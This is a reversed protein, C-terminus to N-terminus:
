EEDGADSSYDVKVSPAANVTTGDELELERVDWGVHAKKVHTVLISPDFMIDHGTARVRECFVYDEGLPVNFPRGDELFVTGFGYTFWPRDIAEFVGPGLAMFGLGCARVPIPGRMDSLVYDKGLVVSDPELTIITTRVGDGRLYAGTVVPYPSAILRMFADTSWSIDSDILVIRDYTFLGQVPEREKPDVAAAKSMLTVERAEHVLSSEGNVWTWSIGERELARVTKTLSRLYESCFSDGPSAIIVSRHQKERVDSPM